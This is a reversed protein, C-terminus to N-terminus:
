VVHIWIEKRAVMSVLRRSVGHEMALAAHNGREARTRIDRVKEPNLKANPHGVGHPMTGHLHKDAHNSATTAWRLNGLTNNATDGDGHAGEMDPLPPEGVFTLLVLRHLYVRRKKGGAALDVGWYKGSRKPTVYRPVALTRRGTGFREVLLRMRGLSSIEYFEEYGPVPRWEESM